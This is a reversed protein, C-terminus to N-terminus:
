RPEWMPFGISPGVVSEWTDCNIRWDEGVELSGRYRVYAGSPLVFLAPYDAPGHIVATSDSIPATSGQFDPLAFQDGNSLGGISFTSPLRDQWFAAPVEIDVAFNAWALARSTRSLDFSARVEGYCERVSGDPMDQELHLLNYRKTFLTLLTDINTSVQELRDRPISGDERMGRAWIQYSLTPMAFPKGPTYLGGHRSPVMPNDGRAEPVSFPASGTGVWYAHTDIETGDVRLAM